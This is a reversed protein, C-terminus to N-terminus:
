WTLIEPNAGKREGQKNEQLCQPNVSSWFAPCRREASLPFCPFREYWVTAAQTRQIRRGREGTRVVWKRGLRFAAKEQRHGQIPLSRVSRRRLPGLAWVQIPKIRSSSWMGLLLLPNIVSGEDPFELSNTGGQRGKHLCLSAPHSQGRLLFLRVPEWPAQLKM